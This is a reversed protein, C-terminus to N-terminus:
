DPQGDARYATGAPHLEAELRRTALGAAVSVLPRDPKALALAQRKSILLGHHLASHRRMRRPLSPRSAKAPRFRAASRVPPSNSESPRGALLRGSPRGAGAVFAVRGECQPAGFARGGAPSLHLGDDRCGQPDSGDSGRDCIIVERVTGDVAAPVLSALTRALAEEDNLTEIVVSLMGGERGYRLPLALVAVM